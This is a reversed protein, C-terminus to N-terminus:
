FSSSCGAYRTVALYEQRSANAAAVSAELKGLGILEPKIETATPFQSRILTLPM